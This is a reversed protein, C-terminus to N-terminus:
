CLTFYAAVPLLVAVGGLPWTWGTMALLVAFCIAAGGLMLHSLGIVFRGRQPDYM